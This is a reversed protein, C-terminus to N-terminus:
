GKEENESWDQGETYGKVHGKAVGKGLGDKFGADKGMCWGIWHQEDTALKIGREVGAQHVKWMQEM